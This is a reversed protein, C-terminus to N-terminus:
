IFLCLPIISSASRVFKGRLYLVIIYTQLQVCIKTLTPTRLRQTSRLQYVQHATRGARHVALREFVVLRKPTEVLHHPSGGVMNVDAELCGGDRRM